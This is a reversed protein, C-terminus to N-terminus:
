LALKREAHFLGLNEELVSGRLLDELAQQYHAAELPQILGLRQIHALVVINQMRADTLNPQQVRILRAKLAACKEAVAEASVEVAQGLRVALPQWVTDYYILVGGPKLAAQAARLAEHRELAVVLDAGQAPILPSHAEPGIRLQSVVIGGRQALGHTDVSKVRLGAHDAARLLVESLLGIGQGGVGTMYINFTTM